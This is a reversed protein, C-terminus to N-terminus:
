LFNCGGQQQPLSILPLSTLSWVETVQEGASKDGTGTEGGGHSEGAMHWRNQTGRTGARAGCERAGRGQEGRCNVRVMRQGTEGM